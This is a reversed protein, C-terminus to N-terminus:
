GHHVEPFYGDRKAQFIVQRIHTMTRGTALSIVDRPTGEAEMQLITDRAHRKEQRALLNRERELTRTLRETARIHGRRADDLKQFLSLILTTQQAMQDRLTGIERALTLQQQHQTPLGGRLTREMQNFAEIYREKWVAAQQGTFGMCLFVFGDRTIEYMPAAISKGGSPNPRNYVTQAFNRRRFEDSCELNSVARLVDNHRKGFHNSIELSTVVLRDGSLHVLQNM